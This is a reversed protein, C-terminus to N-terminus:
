KQGGRRRIWKQGNDFGMFQDLMTCGEPLLLPWKGLDPSLKCRGHSKEAALGFRWLFKQCSSYNEAAATAWRESQPLKVSCYQAAVAGEAMPVLLGSLSRIGGIQTGVCIIDM